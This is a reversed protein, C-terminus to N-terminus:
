CDRIRHPRPPSRRVRGAFKGDKKFFGEATESAGAFTYIGYFPVGKGGWYGMALGTAPMFLMFGYLSVHSINAALKEFFNGPVAPPAKTALRLLVRPVLMAAVLVATSKHIMMLTGKTQGKSGLFTEGTTWQSAKVTGMCTLMSIGMLWHLWRIGAAYQESGMVEEAGTAMGRAPPKATRVAEAIASPARAAVPKSLVSVLSRARLVPLAAAVPKSLAGVLGRARLVPTGTSSLAAVPRLVSPRLTRLAGFM